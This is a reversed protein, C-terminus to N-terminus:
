NVNYRFTELVIPNGGGPYSVTVTVRKHATSGSGLVTVSTTVNTIARRNVAYKGGPNVPPNTFNYPQSFVQELADTGALIAQQKSTSSVALLRPYFLAHIVVVSMIGLIAASLLVEVLTMGSRNKAHFNQRFATRPEVNSVAPQGGGGAGQGRGGLNM